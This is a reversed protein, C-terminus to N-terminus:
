PVVPPSSISLILYNSYPTLHFSGDVYTHPIGGVLICSPILHCLIYFLSLRAPHRMSSLRFLSLSSPSSTALDRSSSRSHRCPLQDDSPGCTPSATRYHQTSAPPRYSNRVTNAGLAGVLICSADPQM